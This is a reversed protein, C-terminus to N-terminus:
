KCNSCHGLLELRYGTAVFDEPISLGALLDDEIDMDLIKGCKLCHTHYHQDTRIDYRAAGDGHALKSILGCEVLAELNKYVTALSIKPMKRKVALFVEEATPHNEVQSLYDFVAVRQETLNGGKLELKEKLLRKIVEIRKM